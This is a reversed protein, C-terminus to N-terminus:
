KVAVVQPGVLSSKSSVGSQPEKPTTLKPAAHIDWALGILGMMRICLYTPDLEWWRLGHRASRQHAHHNNHWGEGFTLAAVWWLNTSRDRTAFNRYGWIHAASNVLWSAHFVFVTRVFM